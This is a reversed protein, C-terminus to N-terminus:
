LMRGLCKQNHWSKSVKQVRGLLPFQRKRPEGSDELIKWFAESSHHTLASWLQCVLMKKLVIDDDLQVRINGLVQLLVCERTFYGLLLRGGKGV